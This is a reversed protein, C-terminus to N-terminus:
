AQEDAWRDIQRVLAVLAIGVVGVVAWHLLQVYVQTVQVASMGDVSSMIRNVMVALWNIVSLGILLYGAINLSRIGSGSVKRFKPGKSQQPDPPAMLQKGCGGCFASEASNHRGCKDCILWQM